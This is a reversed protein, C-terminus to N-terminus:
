AGPKVTTSPQARGAQLCQRRLAVRSKIKLYDRKIAIEIGMGLTRCEVKIPPLWLFM